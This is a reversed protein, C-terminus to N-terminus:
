PECTGAPAPEIPLTQPGASASMEGLLDVDGVLQSGSGTITVVMTRGDNVIDIDYTVDYSIGPLSWPIM